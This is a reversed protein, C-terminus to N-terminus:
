PLLGDLVWAQLISLEEPTVVMTGNAGPPMSGEETRIVACEGKSLGACSYSSLFADDYDTAINHGGSGFGPGHCSGCYTQLIPQADNAYTTLGGAPACTEDPFCGTDEVFNMDPGCDCGPIIADCAPLQGCDYHGCSNPDWVGGTLECLVLEL